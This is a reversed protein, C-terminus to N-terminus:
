RLGLRELEADVAAPDAEPELEVHVRAASASARAHLVGPLARLREAVLRARRENTLGEVDLDVHVYRRELELGAAEALSEVQAVSLRAPDFHVCLRGTGEERTIHVRAVGERGDLTARLREICPDADSAVSPLLLDLDLQITRADSM